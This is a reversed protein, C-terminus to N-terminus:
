ENGWSHMQRSCSVGSMVAVHCVAVEWPSRAPSRRGLVSLQVSRAFFYANIVVPAPLPVVPSQVMSSRYFGCSIRQLRMGQSRNAPSTKSAATNRSCTEWFRPITAHPPVHQRLEHKVNKFCAAAHRQCTPYCKGSNKTWFSRFIQCISRESCVYASDKPSQCRPRFKPLHDILNKDECSHCGLPLRSTPYSHPCHGLSPPQIFISVWM